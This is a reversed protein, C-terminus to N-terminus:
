QQVPSAQDVVIEDINDGMVRMLAVVKDYRPQNMGGFSGTSNAKFKRAFTKQQNWWRISKQEDENETAYKWLKGDAKIKDAIVGYKKDWIGDRELESYLEITGSVLAKREDSLTAKGEGKNNTLLYKQRSWWQGLNKETEDKSTTSPWKKNASAFQKVKELNENWEIQKKSEAM